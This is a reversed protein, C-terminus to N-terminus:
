MKFAVYFASGKGLESELWIKGKHKEVIRKVIALGVGSGEIDQVNDLRKFLEFVQPLQKIDIGIGNDRVCYVVEDENITGEISVTPFDSKLSYKIANSILNSFIQSVMIPDGKIAPTNGVTTVLNQSNYVVKLDNIIEDFLPKTEIEVMEIESRGIRSYELVELIMVSMKNTGEVIRDLMKKSDPTIAKDRQLLQSYSKITTLPNKLDHSITFSFTDLEEYAQKLKENLLRIESAKQNIAYMIEGKLRMVSQIEENTWHKSTAVVTKSWVEFSKRPSIKMIDNDTIELPKDPNGAWNVIALQEPKFWIAYESLERSLTSVLIGSAIDAYAAAEPYILSLNDTYYISDSINTKIWSILANLQEGNPTNGITTVKNDYILVAGEADTVDKLTVSQSTLAEEINNNKQMLKVLEDVSAKLRNKIRQNEEDQRFELASSLIQGILKSSERAKFDIFRPTYNHCAILGWLEKHYILSISFSSNVQMNKLYQIHIPSVARLQSHTLDLPTQDQKETIIKAPVSHVDAILRTLNIKYLDRAQTPIDSAPYHLGLWPSLDNNKAEAVVEGHGDPAFRYIMVRDYNIVKKIQQATNELLHNLNKDALMESISRGIMKQMDLDAAPMAPEFELLYYDNSPSIILYFPKGQIDTRFPNTQDFGNNRGFSILQNIFDPPENKGIISQISNIHLGLLPAPIGSLFSNVNDSHFRIILAKDITILFGHSQIQGPSHIPEIDCNSLDISLSNM